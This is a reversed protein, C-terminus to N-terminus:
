ITDRDSKTVTTRLIPSWPYGPVGAFFPVIGYKGNGGMMYLPNGM